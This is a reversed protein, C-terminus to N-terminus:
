ELPGKIHSITCTSKVYQPVEVTKVIKFGCRYSLSLLGRATKIIKLETIEEVLSKLVVWSDFGSSDHAVM